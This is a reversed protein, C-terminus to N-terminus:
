DLGHTLWPLGDAPPNFSAPMNSSLSIAAFARSVRRCVEVRNSVRRVVELYRSAEYAALREAKVMSHLSTPHFVLLISEGLQIRYVEVPCQLVNSGFSGPNDVLLM